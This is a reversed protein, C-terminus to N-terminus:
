ECNSRKNLLRDVKAYPSYGKGLLYGRRNGYGLRNCSEAGILHFIVAGAVESKSGTSSTENIRSEPIRFAVASTNLRGAIGPVAREGGSVLPEIPLGGM